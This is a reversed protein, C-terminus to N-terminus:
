AQEVTEQEATVAEPYQDSAEAAIPVPQQISHCGNQCIKRTYHSILDPMASVPFSPSKLSIGLFSLLFRWFSLLVLFLCSLYISQLTFKINCIFVFFYQSIHVFSIYLFIFLALPLKWKFTIHQWTHFSLCLM